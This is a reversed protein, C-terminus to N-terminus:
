RSTNIRMYIYRQSFDVIWYVTFIALPGVQFAEIKM